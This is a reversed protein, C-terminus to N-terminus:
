SFLKRVEEPLSSCDLVTDKWIKRTKNLSARTMDPPATFPVPKNVFPAQGAPVVYLVTIVNPRKNFSFVNM